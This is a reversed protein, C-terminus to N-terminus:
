SRWGWIRGRLRGGRRRRGRLGLRLMSIRCSMTKTRRTRRSTSRHCTSKKTPSNLLGTSSRSSTPPAPSTCTCTPTPPTKPSQFPANTLPPPSSISPPLPSVMTTSLNTSTTGTAQSPPIIVVSGFHTPLTNPPLQAINVEISSSDPDITIFTSSIEHYQVQLEPSSARRSLVHFGRVPSARLRITAANQTPICPWLRLRCIDM